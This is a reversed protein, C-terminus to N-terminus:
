RRLVSLHSVGFIDLLIGISVGTATLALGWLFLKMAKHYRPIELSNPRLLHALAITQSYIGSLLPIIALVDAEQWPGSHTAWAIIFSLSFGLMIGVATMTGNRFTPDLMGEVPKHDSM